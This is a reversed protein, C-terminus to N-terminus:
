AIDLRPQSVIFVSSAVFATQMQDRLLKENWEKNIQGYKVNENENVEDNKRDALVMSKQIMEM